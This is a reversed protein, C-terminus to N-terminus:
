RVKKAVENAVDNVVNIAMLTLDVVIITVVVKGIFEFM